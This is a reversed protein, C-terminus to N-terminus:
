LNYICENYFQINMLKRENEEDVNTKSQEKQNELM